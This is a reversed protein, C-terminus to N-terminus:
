ELVTKLTLAATRVSLRPHQRLTRLHRRAADGQWYQRNGAVRVLELAILPAEAEVRAAVDLLFEPPYEGCPLEVAAGVMSALVPAFLPEECVEATLVRLVDTLAAADKGCLVPFLRLRASLPWLSADRDLVRSLEAFRSRLRPLLPRPLDLLRTCLHELRQRAPLDRETGADHAVPVPASVLGAACAVVQEFAHGERAVSVLTEVAEKWGAGSSLEQIRAVLTRAVQEERVPAWATLATSAQSRVDPEPHGVLHLVLAAYRARLRAPLFEPRQGLLSAAVYTDPDRAMAELIEWASEETELLRRAAHGVAIRVDRHLRPREWQQHLLAVSRADRATGLLRVVEKHVTVKLRDRTLLTALAATRTDPPLEEAVRPVADMAVRARDGDLHELLVPLAPTPQDLWALAGLAAEMTPVDHWGLFPLLYQETVAPIRTLVDLLEVREWSCRVEGNAMRLLLDRYRAQQRPLWRHFGSRFLRYDYLAENTSFRGQIPRGDLYPDLWEQRYRHLHEAVQPFAIAASADRALLKRVRVDRTRPPELWLQIARHAHWSTEAETLPELLAQLMDVNWARRGLAECLNLVLLCREQFGAARIRPLLAAVLHHEAGHPLDDFRLHGSEEDQGTLRRELLKLAFQFLPSRHETVHARVLEEALHQLAALTVESADRAEQTDRVLAELFPLHEPTFLSAPVKRLEQLVERRVPDQENRLRSSLEALTETMGRRSLATSRVLLALARARDEAKSAFAAERLPGRSHEIARFALTSLLHVRNDRGKSWDLLRAAEADRLADPLVALLKEDVLERPPLGNFHQAFSQTYLDARESPPTMRLLEILVESDKLARVLAGRQASSFSRVVERLVGKRLVRGRLSERYAPRTLLQSSQEPHRRALRPMAEVVVVPLSWPSTYERVLALVAEGRLLTLVALPQRWTVFLNDREWRSAETFQAQLFALVVDPHRHVLTGWARVAHALEPLHRRVGEAELAPLLLAAENDGHHARVSPLLRAALTERRALGVGKLVRRRTQSPLEPLLQELAADNRLSTGAYAAARARVSRSPHTLGRLLAADERAARAMVLALTAEYADGAVLEALLTPLSPSGRAERGLTAVRALRAGYGLSDLEELL